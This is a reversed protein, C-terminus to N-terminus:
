DGKKVNPLGQKKAEINACEFCLGRSATTNKSDPIDRNAPRTCTLSYLFAEKGCDCCKHM